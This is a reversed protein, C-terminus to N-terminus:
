LTQCTCLWKKITLYRNATAYCNFDYYNVTAYGNSLLKIIIPQYMAM